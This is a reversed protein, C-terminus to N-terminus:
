FRRRVACLYVRTSRPTTRQLGAIVLQVAKGSSDISVVDPVQVGQNGPGTSTLATMSATVDKSGFYQAVCTNVLGSGMPWAVSTILRTYKRPLSICFDLATGRPHLVKLIYFPGRASGFQQADLSIMAQDEQYVEKPMAAFVLICNAIFVAWLPASSASMALAPAAGVVVM